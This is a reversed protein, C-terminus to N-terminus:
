ARGGIGIGDRVQANLWADLDSGERQMGKKAEKEANGPPAERKFPENIHWWNNKIALEILELQKAPETTISVLKRAEADARSITITHHSLQELHAHFEMLKDRVEETLDAAAAPVPESVPAKAAEEGSLPIFTTLIDNDKETDTDNDTHKQIGNAADTHMQYSKSADAQKQEKQEARGTDAQTQEKQKARSANARMQECKDEYASINMDMQHRIVRWIGRVEPDSITVEAGNAHNLQARYLQGLQEDTLDETYELVDKYMIFTKKDAAM